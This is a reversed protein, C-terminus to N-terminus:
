LNSNYNAPVKVSETKGFFDDSLTSPAFDVPKIESLEELMKLDSPPPQQHSVDLYSTSSNLNDFAALVNRLDRDSNLLPGPWRVNRTRQHQKFLEPTELGDEPGDTVNSQM